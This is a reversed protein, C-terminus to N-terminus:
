RPRRLTGGDELELNVVGPDSAVLQRGDIAAPLVAGIPFTSRLGPATTASATTDLVVTTVTRQGNGGSAASIVGIVVGLAVLVGVVIV